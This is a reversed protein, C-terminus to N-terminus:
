LIKNIVLPSILSNQIYKETLFIPYLHNAWRDESGYSTPNRERILNVSILNILDSDEKPHDVEYNTVMKECKIVGEFPHSNRNVKPRIRVYWVSLLNGTYSSEYLVVRSRHYNPLNVIDNAISIEKRKVIVDPNFRKSVGIVFQNNKRYKGVNDIAKDKQFLKYNYDISGDKLLYSEKDLKGLRNVEDVTELELLNMHYQVKGKALTLTDISPKKKRANYLDYYFVKRLGNVKPDRIVEPLSDNFSNMIETSLLDSRGQYEDPIIEVPLSLVLYRKKIIPNLKKQERECAVVAVQGAVEPYIKDGIILDQTHYKRRTGDIFYKFLPPQDTSQHQKVLGSLDFYADPRDEGKLDIIRSSQLNEPNYDVIVENAYDLVTVGSNLRSTRTTNVVIDSLKKM